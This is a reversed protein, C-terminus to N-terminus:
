EPPIERYLLEIDVGRRKQIAKAALYWVVGAVYVGIVFLVAGSGTPGSFAPLKFASYLVMSFLVLNGVGLLTVVPVNGIRRQVYDPSAAFIEPRRYPLLIAAWSAMWFAISFLVIYNSVNDFITTFVFLALLIEACVIIVITAVWPAHFRRDVKTIADPAVRDVSWAFLNRTCVMAIVFLLLFNWLFFSLAMLVNLITSSTMIGTFFNLVPDVPLGSGADSNDNLFVVSNIFDQGVIEYFRWLCLLYMVAAFALTAAIMRPQTRAPEKVEGGIYTSYTFGIYIYYGIPVALLLAGVTSAKEVFGAQGAAQLISDYTQGDARDAMFTNFRSVFESRTTTLLVILTVFSGLIAPIFLVNLVRRVVRPGMSLVVLVSVIMATGLGFTWWDGSVNEGATVLGASDLVNGLTLFAVAIGFNVTFSAYLGLGLLQSWQFGWNATFGAAPHVVRGLYVYEGGSRPMAASLYAYTLANAVTLVTGLAVTLLVNAEPVAGAMLLPIIGLVLGLAYGITNFVFVDKSGFERVLGSSRRLFLGGSTTQAAPAEGGVADSTSM